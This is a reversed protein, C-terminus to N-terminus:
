KLYIDAGGCSNTTSGTTGTSDTSVALTNGVSSPLSGGIYGNPNESLESNSLDLLISQQPHTGDSFYWVTDYNVSQSQDAAYDDYYICSGGSYFSCAGNQGILSTVNTASNDATSLDISPPLSSYTNAYQNWLFFSKGNYSNPLIDLYTIYKEGGPNYLYDYGNYSSNDRYYNGVLVKRWVGNIMVPQSTTSTNECNTNATTNSVTFATNIGGFGMSSVKEIAINTTPSDNCDNAYYLPNNKMDAGFNYYAPTNISFSNVWTPSSFANSSFYGAKAFLNSVVLNNASLTKTYRAPCTVTLDTSYFYPYITEGPAYQQKDTQFTITHSITLTNNSGQTWTTSPQCVSTGSQDGPPCGGGISFSGSTTCPPNNGYPDPGYAGPCGSDTYTLNVTDASATSFMSFISLAFVLTFFIKYKKM